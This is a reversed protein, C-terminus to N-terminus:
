PTKSSDPLKSGFVILLETRYSVFFYMVFVTATCALIGALAAFIVLNIKRSKVEPLAKKIVVLSPLNNSKQASLASTYLSKALILQTTMDEIKAAAEYLSFEIESLPKKLPKAGDPHERMQSLTNMYEFLKDNQVKSINVTESLYSNYFNLNAQIKDILYKKNLQDLKWVITNAMTAAIENNRDNVVISSLDTALKIFAIKQTIKRVTKAYYNTETTDINYHKYLNFHKILFTMMETSYALQYVREQVLSVQLIDQQGKQSFVTPSVMSENALYFTTSGEYNLVKPILFYGGVFFTIVFVALYLLRYRRLMMLLELHNM